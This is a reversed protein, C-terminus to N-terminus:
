AAPARPAPPDLDPPLDFVAEALPREGYPGQLGEADPLLVAWDKLGLDELQWPTGLGWELHGRGIIGIMLPPEPRDLAKALNCAFARDWVQQARVFRDFSPAEPSQSERNPRVGGTIDFLYRRYEPSAARAPTLGERDAEPIAEWGLKGVESVLGRRCNLGHMPVGFERCFRFLPLYIEPPFGWVKAWEARELFEAEPLDGAVWEALVPDLRAPFMEFGMAVPRRAALGAAVHLQWRHLAASDHREGLLVVSRAALRDMLDPHSIAAGAAPDTWGRM